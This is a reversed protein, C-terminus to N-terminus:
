LPRRTQARNGLAVTLSYAFSEGARELSLDGEGNGARMFQAFQNVILLTAFLALVALQGFLIRRLM